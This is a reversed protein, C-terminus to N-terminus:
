TGIMCYSHATFVFMFDVYHILFSDHYQAWQLIRLM